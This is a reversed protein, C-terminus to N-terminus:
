RNNTPTYLPVEWQCYMIRRKEFAENSHIEYELYVLIISNQGVEAFPLLHCVM